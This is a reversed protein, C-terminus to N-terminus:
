CVYGSSLSARCKRPSPAALEVVHVLKRVVRNCSQDPGDDDLQGIVTSTATELLKLAANATHSSFLLSVLCIVEGMILQWPASSRSVRLLASSIAESDWEPQLLQVRLHASGSAWTGRAMLNHSSIDDHNLWVLAASLAQHFQPSLTLVDLLCPSTFSGVVSDTAAVHRLYQLVRETHKVRREKAVRSDHGRSWLAQLWPRAVALLAVAAARDDHACSQAAMLIIVHGDHPLATSLKSSISPLATADITTATDSLGM